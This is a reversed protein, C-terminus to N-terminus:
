GSGEPASVAIQGGPAPRGLGCFVFCKDLSWVRDESSLHPMRRLPDGVPAHGACSQFVCLRSEVAGIGQSSLFESWASAPRKGQHAKWGRATPPTRKKVILLHLM